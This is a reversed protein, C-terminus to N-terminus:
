MLELLTTTYPLSLMEEIDDKTTNENISTIVFFSKSANTATKFNKSGGQIPQDDMTYWRARRNDLIDKPAINTEFPIEFRYNAKNELVASSQSLKFYYQGNLDKGDIEHADWEQFDIFLEANESLADEPELTGPTNAGNLVFNYIKNRLISNYEIPKGDEGYKAFDLRYYRVGQITADDLTVGVVATVVEDRDGNKKLLEEHLFIPELEKDEGVIESKFVLPYKDAIAIDKTTPTPGNELLYLPNSPITLKYRSKSQSTNAHVDEVQPVIAYRDNSRYINLSEVAKFNYKKNSSPKM